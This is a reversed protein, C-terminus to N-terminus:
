SRKNPRGTNKENIERLKQCEVNGSSCEGGFRLCMIPTLGFDPNKKLEEAIKKSAPHWFAPLMEPHDKFKQLEGPKHMGADSCEVFQERFSKKL